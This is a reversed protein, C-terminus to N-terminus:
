FGKWCGARRLVEAEEIFHIVEHNVCDNAEALVRVVDNVIANDKTADM